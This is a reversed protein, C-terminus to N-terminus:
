VQSNVPIAIPQVNILAERAAASKLLKFFNKEENYFSSCIKEKTWTENRSSIYFFFFHQQMFPGQILHPAKDWHHRNSSILNSIVQIGARKSNLVKHKEM